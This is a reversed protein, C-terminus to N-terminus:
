LAPNSSVNSTFKHSTYFQKNTRIYYYTTSLHYWFVASFFYMAINVFFLKKKRETKVYM